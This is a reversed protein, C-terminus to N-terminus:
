HVRIISPIEPQPSEALKELRTTQDRDLAERQADGSEDFKKTTPDFLLLIQDCDVIVWRREGTVPFDWEYAEGMRYLAAPGSFTIGASDPDYQAKLRQIAPYDDDIKESVKIIRCAHPKDQHTKTDPVIIGGETAYEVNPMVVGLVKNKGIPSNGTRAPWPTSPTEMPHFENFNVAM